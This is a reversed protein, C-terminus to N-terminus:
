KWSLCNVAPYRHLTNDKTVLSLGDTQAQAVLIRDFPDRHEWTMSGAQLMHSATLPIESAGMASLLEVWRALIGEAGPMKGLRVKQAVEYASAASVFIEEADSLAARVGTPIHSPESALWVIVHTDLLYKTM